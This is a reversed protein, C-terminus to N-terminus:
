RVRLALEEEGTGPAAALEQRRGTPAFGLREYFRRGRTNPDTVWLRVLATGEARALTVVAEVLAAAAGSGREEPEVWLSILHRRPAPSDESLAAVLGVPRGARYAFFWAAGELWSRWDDDTMARERELTSAFAYPAEALARLRLGKLTEIESAGAAVVTLSDPV